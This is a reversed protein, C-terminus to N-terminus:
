LGHRLEISSPVRRVSVSIVALNTYTDALPMVVDLITSYLRIMKFIVAQVKLLIKFNPVLPVICLTLNTTPNALHINVVVVAFAYESPKQTM